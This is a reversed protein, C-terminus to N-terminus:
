PMGECTLWETEALTVLADPQDSALTYDALPSPPASSLHVGLMGAARAGQTPMLENDAIEALNESMYAVEEIPPPDILLGHAEAFIQADPKPPAVAESSLLVVEFEDLFGPNVLLDQLDQFTYGDPTNTIVGVRMGLGKLEAIMANIGPRLAFLDGDPEVLTEGLDFFIVRVPACPRGCVNDVGGGGCTEPATCRGCELQEGCGDPLAGCSKEVDDCAIPACAPLDPPLPESTSAATTAETTTESTGTTSPADATTEAITTDTSASAPAGTTPAGTTGPEATAAVTTGTESTAATTTATTMTQDAGGCAALLLVTLLARPKM